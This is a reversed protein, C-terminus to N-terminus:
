SAAAKRPQGTLAAQAAREAAKTAQASKQDQLLQRLQAVVRLYPQQNEEPRLFTVVEAMKQGARGTRWAQEKFQQYTKPLDFNVVMGVGRMYPFRVLPISTAVMISSLSVEKFKRIHALIVKRPMGDHVLTCHDHRNHGNEVLLKFLAEAAEQM